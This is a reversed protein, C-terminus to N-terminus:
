VYLEKGWQFGWREVNNDIKRKREKAKKGYRGIEEERKGWMAAVFLERWTNYDAL